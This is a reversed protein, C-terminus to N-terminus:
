ATPRKKPQAITVVGAQKGNRGLEGVREAAERLDDENKIDYRDFISRTKHGVIKMVVGGICRETSLHPRRHSPFRSPPATGARVGCRVTRAGRRRDTRAQASLNGAVCVTRLRRKRAHLPEGRVDRSNVALVDFAVFRPAGRRYTLAYFDPRGRDDLCFLEGDLIASRCRLEARLAMALPGFQRYV